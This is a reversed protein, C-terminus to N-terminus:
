RARRSGSSPVGSVESLQGVEESTTVWGEKRRVQLLEESKV